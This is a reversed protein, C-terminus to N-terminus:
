WKTIYNWAENLSQRKDNKMLPVQWHIILSCILLTFDKTLTSCSVVADHSTQNFKEEHLESKNYFLLWHGEFLLWCM